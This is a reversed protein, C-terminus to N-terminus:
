FRFKAVPWLSSSELHRSTDLFIMTMMTTVELNEVQRRNGVQGLDNDDECDDDCDGDDDNDHMTLMAIVMLNRSCKSNVAFFRLHM